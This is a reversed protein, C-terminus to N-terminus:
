PRTNKSTEGESTNQYFEIMRECYKPWTFISAVRQKGATGLRQALGDERKLRIMAEALATATDSIGSPEVLLSSGPDCIEHIGQHYLAIVPVGRSMAELVVNGSTDRISTFLFSDAEDMLANVRDKPVRGPIDVKDAIGLRRAEERVREEEPGAGAITLRLDPESDLATAFAQLALLPAKRPIMQGLWLVKLEVSKGPPRPNETIVQPCVATELLVPVTERRHPQLLDATERNAAIVTAAEEVTERWWPLFRLSRILLSRRKEKAEHKGFLPLLQTPCTMGGGLPGLVVPKGTNIWLGPFQVGNFTVHHILDASELEKRFHWRAAIQWLVYYGSTGLLRKKLKLFPAPLDYYLFEPKAGDLEALGAEIARRNNARTIARVNCHTAMGTAVRWGVEPESGKGPECAYVSLLVNM